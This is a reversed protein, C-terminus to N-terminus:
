SRPELTFTFTVGLTAAAYQPPLPPLRVTQVARLSERDYVGVGSNRVLTVQSVGGNRSIVFHVACSVHSREAFGLQRPRWNRAILGEVRSLYWAFPFDTDTGAVAPGSVTPQQDVPAADAQEQRSDAPPDPEPKKEPEPKREPVPEPLEKPPLPEPEPPKVPIVPESVQEDEVTIPEPEPRVLRVNITRAPQIVMRNVQNGYMVALTVIVVHLLVSWLLGRSM